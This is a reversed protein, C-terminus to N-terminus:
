KKIKEKRYFTRILTRTVVIGTFLSLVVGLFLTLAFGRVMGSSNLFSWNFPNFLVFCTILTCANSDRISNWARKFGLEMSAYLPNGGRREEKIREFILINADVAMGISLLFGAVGALSLTVPVLKYIALSLLGYIILAIDALVGLKGYNGIMFIGVILLGVIGAFLSRQISEQGLTASIQSQSLLSIPTPLAGANLQIVINKADEITFKGTIVASGGSIETNVRPAQLLVDDLYIALPKGINRKTIEQFKTAGDATFQLGIEPENTNSFTLNAKTLDRGTLDTKVFTASDTAALERFDLQATQGIVKLAESASTIGPLEVIVRYDSGSVATQVQPESVGLFNIRREIINRVGDLAGARDVPAVDAMDAKFIMQAGGSLDLGKKLNLDRQFNGASISYGGIATNVKVQGVSFKIPIAPLDILLAAVALGFVLILTLQYRSLRLHM